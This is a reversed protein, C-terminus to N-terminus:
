AEELTREISYTKGVGTEGWVYLGNHRRNVIGTVRDVVMQQNRLYTEFHQRDTDNMTRELRFGSFDSHCPTRWALEGHLTAKISGGQTSGPWPDGTARFGETRAPAWRGAASARTSWM